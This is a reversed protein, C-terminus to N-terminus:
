IVLKPGDVARGPLIPRKFYASKNTWVLGNEEVTSVQGGGHSYRNGHQVSVLEWGAAGLLGMAKSFPNFKTPRIQNEPLLEPLQKSVADGSPSYYVVVCNYYSEYQGKLPGKNIKIQQLSFLRLECFEWKQETM